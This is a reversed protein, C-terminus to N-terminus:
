PRTIKFKVEYSGGNDGYHSDFAGIRLVGGHNKVIMPDFNGRFPFFFDPPKSLRGTGEENVTAKLKGSSYQLGGTCPM